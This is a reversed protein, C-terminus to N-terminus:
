LFMLKAFASSNQPFYNKRTNHHLFLLNVLNRLKNLAYDPTCSSEFCYNISLLFLKWLSFFRQQSEWLKSRAFTWGSNQANRRFCSSSLLNEQWLECHSSPFLSDDASHQPTSFAFVYVTFIRKRFFSFMVGYLLSAQANNYSCMCSCSIYLEIVWVDIGASAPVSACIRLTFSFTTAATNTRDPRRSFLIEEISLLLAEFSKSWLWIFNTTPRPMEFAVFAKAKVPHTDRSECSKSCFFFFGTQSFGQPFHWLQMSFFHHMTTSILLSFKRWGSFNFLKNKTEIHSFYNKNEQARFRFCNKCTSFTWKSPRPLFIQPFNWLVRFSNRM